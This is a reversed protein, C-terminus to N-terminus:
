IINLVHGEKLTVLAKKWDPKRGTAFRFRRKKGKMTMTNVREVKVNFNKEVAHKIEIKNADKLVIFTYTNKESGLDMAKETVVPRILTSHRDRM